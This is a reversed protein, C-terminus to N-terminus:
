SRMPVWWVVASTISLGQAMWYDGKRVPCTFGDDDGGSGYVGTGTRRTTPPSTSDVLCRAQANNVGYSVYMVVFGDTSAQYITDVSRLEYAGFGIVGDSDSVTDSASIDTAYIDTAYLNGTTSDLGDSNFIVNSAFVTVIGFLLFLFFVIVIKSSFIGRLAKM